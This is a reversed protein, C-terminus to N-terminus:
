LKSPNGYLSEREKQDADTLSVQGLRPQHSLLIKRKKKKPLGSLAFCVSRIVHGKGLSHKREQGTVYTLRVCLCPRILLERQNLVSRIVALVFFGFWPFSTCFRNWHVCSWKLDFQM